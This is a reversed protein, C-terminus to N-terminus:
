RTERDPPTLSALHDYHKGEIFRHVEAKFEPPCTSVL